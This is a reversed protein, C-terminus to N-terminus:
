KPNRRNQHQFHGKPDGAGEGYFLLEWGWFGIVGVAIAGAQCIIGLPPAVKRFFFGPEAVLTM